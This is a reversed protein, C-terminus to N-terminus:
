DNFKEIYEEVTKITYSTDFCNKCICDGTTLEYVNDTINVQCRDCFVKIEGTKTNREIM